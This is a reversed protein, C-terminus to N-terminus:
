KVFRSVFRRVLEAFSIYACTEIALVHLKKRM